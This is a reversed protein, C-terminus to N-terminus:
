MVQWLSLFHPSMKGSVLNGPLILAVSEGPQQLMPKGLMLRHVFKWGPQLNSRIDVGWMMNTVLRGGGRLKSMAYDENSLDVYLHALTLSHVM